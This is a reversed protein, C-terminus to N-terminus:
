SAAGRSRTDEDQWGLMLGRSRLLSDGQDWIATGHSSASRPLEPRRQLLPLTALASAATACGVCIWGERIRALLMPGHWFRAHWVVLMLPGYVPRGVALWACCLSLIALIASCRRVVPRGLVVLTVVGIVIAVVMWGRQASNSARYLPTGLAPGYALRLAAWQTGVMLGFVVDLGLAIMAARGTDAISGTV